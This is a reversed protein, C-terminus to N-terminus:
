QVKIKFVHKLRNKLDQVTNSCCTSVQLCAQLAKFLTRKKISPCVKQNFNNIIKIVFLCFKRQMFCWLKYLPMWNTVAVDKWFFFRLKPTQRGMVPNHNKECPQSEEWLTTIRQVPNRNKAAKNSIFMVLNAYSFKAERLLCPGSCPNERRRWCKRQKWKMVEMGVSNNSQRTDISM